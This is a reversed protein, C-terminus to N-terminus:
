NVKTRNKCTQYTEVVRKIDLLSKSFMKEKGEVDKKIVRVTVAIVGLDRAEKVTQRRACKLTVTSRKDISM